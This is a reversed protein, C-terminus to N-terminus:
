YLGGTGAVSSREQPAHFLPDAGIVNEPESTAPGSENTAPARVEQGHEHSPEADHSPAGEQGVDEEAHEDDFDNSARRNPDVQQEQMSAGPKLAEFIVPGDGSGPQGGTQADIRVLKVGPPVRFPVRPKGKLAREFFAKVAVLAVKAGGQHHGLPKPHDFGLYAGVVLDASFGIFWADKFDNTTGTKGGLPYGLESLQRATGRQVAGELLSIMQYDTVPDIVQPRNDQLVPVDMLSTTSGMCAVDNGVFVTKGHRNQIRDILTPTIKKGGNAIIAHATTMKLLTTEGAGLVMALEHPMKDLVGLRKAMEAVRGIGVLEHTMRITVTNRSREFGRRMTMIGGFTNDYNRPRWVGLGRGLNIAFPADDILTTPSLGKELAALYVITKFSSGTQRLAQTARNFQSEQFSFGGQMALVHGTHPDMVVLGGSVAPVQCLRLIRGDKEKPLVFVVDGQTLVQNTNTIAPGLSDVGLYKRAWTLESLPIIGIGGKELGVTAGEKSHGLVVARLWGKGGTHRPLTKFSAMWPSSEDQTNTQQASLAVHALPGRWGHRRDYVEFAEQLSEQAFEQYTPNLTTRVVYGDGYLSKEGFKEVLERRVEEAFYAGQVGDAMTRQKIQLPKAMAEQAEQPTVKGDDRMRAIVYNRRELAKEYHKAPNYHNPAKPLAALYAMEELTLADLAKDFYHLAAAAVGYAGCGLYIENLYLELIYDKSYAKEIRLALIAEKVKRELSVLSSIDALLFNKAVQQTITSAGIPRKSHQMRSINAVAAGIISPIDLGMHEYFNKDEASIFADRVRMPIAGLPVYLRKQSAYEGFVRGDNAYFRTLVPPEYNALQQFNPLGKGYHYFVGVVSVAAVLGVVFLATFLNALFRLM